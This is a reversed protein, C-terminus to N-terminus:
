KNEVIYYWRNQNGIQQWQYVAAKSTTVPIGTEGGTPKNYTGKPLTYTTNPFHRFYQYIRTCVLARNKKSKKCCFNQDDVLTLCYTKDFVKTNHTNLLQQTFAIDIIFSYMEEPYQGNKPYKLEIAYKKGNKEAVLDIESKYLNEKSIGYSRVNKEFYVDYGNKRLYCGLEFQLSFENYVYNSNGTNPIVTNIFNQLDTLM